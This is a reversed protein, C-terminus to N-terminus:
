VVSKRDGHGSVSERSVRVDRQADQVLQGVDREMVLLRQSKRPTKHTTLTREPKVSPRLSRALAAAEKLFQDLATQAKALEGKATAM